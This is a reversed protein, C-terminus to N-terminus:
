DMEFTYISTRTTLVAKSGSRQWIGSQINLVLDGDPVGEDLIFRLLIKGPDSLSYRYELTGSQGMYTRRWKWDGGSGTPAIGMLTGRGMRVYGDDLHTLDLASGGPDASTMPDDFKM